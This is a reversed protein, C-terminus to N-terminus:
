GQEVHNKLGALVMGCNSECRAEDPGPALNLCLPRTTRPATPSVPSDAGICIPSASTRYSNWFRARTKTNSGQRARWSLLQAKRNGIPRLKQASSTNEIPEPRALRERVKAVPADLTISVKAAM